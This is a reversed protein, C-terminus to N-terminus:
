RNFKLSFSKKPSEDLLELEVTEGNASILIPLKTSAKGKKLTIELVWTLSILHGEFSYPGLPASFQFSEKGATEKTPWEKSQVIQADTTGRGETYWGLSLKVIEPPKELAWLIEGVIMEGPTFQTKALDVFLNENM